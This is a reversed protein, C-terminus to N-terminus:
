QMLEQCYSGIDRLNGNKPLFSLVLAYLKSVKWVDIKKRKGDKATLGTQKVQRTLFLLTHQQQQSFCLAIFSECPIFLPQPSPLPSYVQHHTMRDFSNKDLHLKTHAAM